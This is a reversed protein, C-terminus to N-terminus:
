ESQTFEVLRTLKEKAAGSLIARYAMEAGERLNEAAGAAVLAAAANMVVIDRMPGAEGGLVRRVMAANEAATGGLLAEVPARTVGFEEPTVKL